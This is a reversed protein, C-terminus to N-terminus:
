ASSPQITLRDDVHQFYKAAYAMSMVGPHRDVTHTGNADVERGHRPM